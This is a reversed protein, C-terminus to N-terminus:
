LSAEWQLNVAWTTFSARHSMENVRFNIGPMMLERLLHGYATLPLPLPLDEVPKM